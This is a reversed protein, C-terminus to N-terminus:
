RPGGSSLRVRASEEARTRQWQRREPHDVLFELAAAVMDRVSEHPPAIGAREGATTDLVYNENPFPFVPHTAAFVREGTGTPGGGVARRRSEVGAVSACLDVFGELSVLEHGAVNYPTTGPQAEHRLAAAFAYGVQASSIFQQVAKGDGPVYVEEGDLLRNLVFEERPAYNGPALVYPLRLVLTTVESTRRQRLVLESGLKEAAYTGWLSWPGDPTGEDWPMVPQPRYVAGTSCHVFRGVEGVVDLLLSTQAATYASLDIAADIDLSALQTLAGRDDRDGLVHEVQRQFAVDRTGRNFLVVDHGDDLLHRVVQLGILRTGGM